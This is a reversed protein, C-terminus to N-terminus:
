TTMLPEDLQLDPDPRHPDNRRLPFMGKSLTGLPVFLFFFEAVAGVEAGSFRRSMRSTPTNPPIPSYELEISGRM